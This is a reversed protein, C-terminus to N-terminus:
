NSDLSLSYRSEWTANSYTAHQRALALADTSKCGATQLSRGTFSLGGRKNRRHARVQAGTVTKWATHFVKEGRAAGFIPLLFLGNTIDYQTIKKSIPCRCKKAKECSNKVHSRPLAVQIRQLRFRIGNGTPPIHGHRTRRPSLRWAKAWAAGASTSDGAHVLSPVFSRAQLYFNLSSM